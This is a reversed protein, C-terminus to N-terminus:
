HHPAVPQSAPAAPSSAPDSGPVMGNGGSGPKMGGSAANGQGQGEDMIRSESGFLHYSKFVVDNMQTQVMVTGNQTDPTAGAVPVKSYAVGHVPCIYTRDGITVPAYEVLIATEMSQYLGPLDALLSIRLISGTAPDIAIEGHYAPYIMDVKKGNPIGVVYNSQDEPVAYHVVAMPDSSTPEWRAWTVQSRMADGLVVSLIPGFEGSTTLGAPSQDATADKTGAAAHVEFGGRYTVTASYTGTSHLPKAEARHISLGLPYAHWGTVAPAAATMQDQSPADEFHTTERTASFNPLRTMTTKVYDNALALMKEQTDSDPEAIRLVDQPPPNLFAAKDALRILVERTKDGPFSKEWRALREPSLREILEVDALVQAVHGDAKNQNAALLQELQEVSLSKAAMAPAAMGALLLVAAWKVMAFWGREGRGFTYDSKDKWGAVM